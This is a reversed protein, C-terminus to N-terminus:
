ADAKIRPTVPFEGVPVPPVKQEGLSDALTFKIVPGHPTQDIILNEGRGCNKTIQTLQDYPILM